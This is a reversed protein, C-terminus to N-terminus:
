TELSEREKEARKSQTNALLKIECDSTEEREMGTIFSVLRIETFQVATWQAKAGNHVEHM